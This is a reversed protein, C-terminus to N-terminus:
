MTFIINPTNSNGNVINFFNVINPLIAYYEDIAIITVAIETQTYKKM